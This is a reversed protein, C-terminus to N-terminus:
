DLGCERDLLKKRELIKAVWGLVGDVLKSVESLEDQSILRGEWNRKIETKGKWPLWSANATKERRNRRIDKELDGLGIGNGNGPADLLRSLEMGWDQQAEHEANNLMDIINTLSAANDGFNKLMPRKMLCTNKALHDLDRVHIVADNDGGQGESLMGSRRIDSAIQCSDVPKTGHVSGSSSDGEEQASRQLNTLSEKWTTRHQRCGVLLTTLSDLLSGIDRIIVVMVLLAQEEEAEDETLDQTGPIAGDEGSGTKAENKPRSYIKKLSKTAKSMREKIGTVKKALSHFRQKEYAMREAVNADLNTSMALTPLIVKDRHAEFAQLSNALNGSSSSSTSALVRSGAEIIENTRRLLSKGMWLYSRPPTNTSTSDSEYMEAFRLQEEITGSDSSDKDQEQDISTVQPQGNMGPIWAVGATLASMASVTVGSALDGSRELTRRGIEMGAGVISGVAHFPTMVITNVYYQIIFALIYALALLIMTWILIKNSMLARIFGFILYPLPLLLSGIRFALTALFSPPGPRRPPAATPTGAGDDLVEEGDDDDDDIEQEEIRGKLLRQKQQGQPQDGSTVPAPTSSPQTFVNYNIVTNHANKADVQIVHQTIDQQPPADRTNDADSPGGVVNRALGGAHHPPPPLRAIESLSARPRNFNALSVSTRSFRQFHTATAIISGRTSGNDGPDSYLDTIEEVLFDDSSVSHQSMSM